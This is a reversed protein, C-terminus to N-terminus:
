NGSIMCDCMLTAYQRRSLMWGIMKTTSVGGTATRLTSSTGHEVLSSLSTPGSTRHSASICRPRAAYADTLWDRMIPYQRWSSWPSQHLDTERVKGLDRVPVQAWRVCSARSSRPEVGRSKLPRSRPRAKPDRSHKVCEPLDEPLTSLCLLLLDTESCRALCMRCPAM